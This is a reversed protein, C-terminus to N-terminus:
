FIQIVIGVAAVIDAVQEDSLVGRQRIFREVSLSKIQFADAASLKDLGNQGDPELKVFWLHGEFPDQWGTIPVVVKLPLNGIRDGSVVVCPRIKQIEAGQTPNLDVDWVQGRYIRKM